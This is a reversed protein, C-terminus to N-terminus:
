LNLRLEDRGIPTECYGCRLKLPDQGEVYFKTPVHEHNDPNTICKPNQCRVIEDIQHPLKIRGKRIVRGDRVINITAGSSVLALRSLESETLERGSVGIVDKQGYRQSRLNRAAVVETDRYDDLGLVKEVRRGRGLEIHDILTGDDLRYVMHEGKKIGDVIPLNEWLGNHGYGNRERGEFGEGLIRSLIAMRMWMGNEAQDLYHAHQTDDVDMAIELNHKYRPLPHMVIMGPKADKLMEAMLNFASSAKRYQTEGEAGEPFRERQVRTMYLVDCNAVAESLNDSIVVRRGTTSEFDDIRWKPMAVVDPAVLWPEADYHELGQLLSHVTRGYRLDGIMAIKLGDITGMNEFITMLDLDAQTPHGNDSDGCNIVDANVMEKAYRASGALNHRVAIVDYGYGDFMRLTDIFPEGKKVSTGESGAFGNVYMGINEAATETSIRTRTSNEFFLSALKRGRGVGSVDIKGRKIRLAEAILNDLDNRSMDRISILDHMVM